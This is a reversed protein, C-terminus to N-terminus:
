ILSIYALILARSKAMKPWNEFSASQKITLLTVSLSGFHNHKMDHDLKLIKSDFRLGIKLISITTM